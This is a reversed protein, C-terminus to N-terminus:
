KAAATRIWRGRRASSRRWITRVGRCAQKGGCFYGLVHMQRLSMRFSFHPYFSHNLLHIDFAKAVARIDAFTFGNTWLTNAYCIDSEHPFFIDPRNPFLHRSDSAQQSIGSKFEFHLTCNASIPLRTYHRIHATALSDFPRTCGSDPM